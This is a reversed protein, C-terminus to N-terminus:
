DTKKSIINHQMEKKIGALRLLTNEYQFDKIDTLAQKLAGDYEPLGRKILLELEQLIAAYDFRKIYYIANELSQEYEEKTMPLSPSEEQLLEKCIKDYKEITAELKAYFNEIRRTFYHYYYDLTHIDQKLVIQELDRALDALEMAGINAFVSKLNHVGIRIMNSQNNKFGDMIHNKCTRIDKLSVKLINIYNKPDGIAYRLGVNYNIENIDFVLAKIISDEGSSLIVKEEGTFEKISLQPWWQKLIAALEMLGLPKAYVDDAGNIRYQNRIEDSISSTLAIIICDNHLDLGRITKTTQVGDMEPMVHDLFIIDYEKNVVMDIAQSGSCAQDVNIDFLELMNALVITNVENDDVVLAEVLNEKM